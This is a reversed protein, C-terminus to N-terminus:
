RALPDIIRGAQKVEWHVHPGTTVGTMGILAVPQGRAVRDGIAALVASVHYVCSELADAHEVCVRRGGVAVFGVASIVGDDDAVVLAGFPAAIDVGTHAGGLPQTIAGVAPRAFRRADAAASTALGPPASAAVTGAACRFLELRTRALDIRSVGAFTTGDPSFRRPGLLNPLLFPMGPGDATWAVFRDRAMAGPIAPAIAGM